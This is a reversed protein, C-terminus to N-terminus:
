DSFADRIGRIVAADTARAHIRHVGSQAVLERVNHPRVGGGALIALRNGGLAHLRGLVEAGELATPAHGSTLVEDLGLALLERLTAEPDPTRDFARHCVTRLGAAERVLVAMRAVDLHGDPLLVGFVVGQVRQSRLRQLDARMLAFEADTYVFDGERPRLMAHVPVDVTGFVADVLEPEPTLGGEGVGCLELRDAGARVAALAQEATEVYAEIFPRPLTPM